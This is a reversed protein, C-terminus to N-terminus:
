WGKLLKDYIKPSDMRLVQLPSDHNTLWEWDFNEFTRCRVILHERIADTAVLGRTSNPPHFLPEPVVM